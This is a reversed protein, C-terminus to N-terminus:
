RMASRSSIPRAVLLVNAFPTGGHMPLTQVKFGLEALLTLWQSLPRCYLHSLRQNRVFSMIADVWTSFRFPLGAAADGIRLLLHGDTGLSTKVRSLVDRQVEFNVYHLVDLLVAVDVHGFETTRMDGHVFEAQPRVHDLAAEAWGVGKPAHKM